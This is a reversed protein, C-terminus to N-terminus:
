GPPVPMECSRRCYSDGSQSRSAVVAQDQQDRARVEGVQHERARGGALALDGNTQRDACRAAADHTLKERLAQQNGAEAAAQPASSACHSLRNRTPKRAVSFLRMKTASVISQRIKANM